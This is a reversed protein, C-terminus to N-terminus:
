EGSWTALSESVRSMCLHEVMVNGSNDRAIPRSSPTEMRSVRAVDATTWTVQAMSDVSEPQHDRSSKHERSDFYALLISTCMPAM